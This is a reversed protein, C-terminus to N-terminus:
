FEWNPMDTASLILGSHEDLEQVFNFACRKHKKLLRVIGDQIKRYSINLSLVM